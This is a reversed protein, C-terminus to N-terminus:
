QNRCSAPLYKDPLDSSCQWQLSGSADVEPTLSIHGGDLQSQGRLELVIVGNDAKVKIETVHKSQPQLSDIIQSIEEANPYRQNKAYQETVWLRAQSATVMGETVLARGTYDQYAPIAIAAMIGAIAVTSMSQNALFEVPNNEYTIEMLYLPDGATIRLGYAGDDPLQLEKATPMSFLDFESGAIEAVFSLGLLYTYYLKRPIDEFRTSIQLVAHEGPQKQTEKLWKGIDMHEPYRARDMLDQPIASFVLYRGERVWYYHDHIRGLMDLLQPRSEGLKKGTELLTKNWTSPLAAHTITVGSKSREEVKAGTAKIKELLAVLKTDDRVALAIYESLDDSFIVLEQGFVEFIETPDFGLQKSIEAYGNNFDELEKGKMFLTMMNKAMDVSARDPLRLIAVTGPKGSAKLSLNNAPLPTADTSGGIGMSALSLGPADLLLSLRGKGDAVGAGVAIRKIKNLGSKQLQAIQEPPLIPLIQETNVWAFVGQGSADIKQEEKQMLPAQKLLTTAKDLVATDLTMGGLLFLRQNEADFRMLLPLEGAKLMGPQEKSIPRELSLMGKQEPPNEFLANVEEITKLDLRATVLVNAAFVQAVDPKLMVAEVPSALHQLLLRVVPDENGINKGLAARTAVVADVNARSNLGKNLVSGKPASVLGWFSPIRAYALADVPMRERLWAPASIRNDLAREALPPIAPPTPETVQPETLRTPAVPPPTSEDSCAVLTICASLAFTRFNLMFVVM